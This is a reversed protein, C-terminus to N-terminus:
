PFGLTNYAPKSVLPAVSKRESLTRQMHWELNGVQM